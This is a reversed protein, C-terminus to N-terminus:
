SSRLVDVLLAGTDWQRNVADVPYADAHDVITTKKWKKPCIGVLDLRKMTAVVTERSIIEENSLDAVGVDPSARYCHRRTDNLAREIPM